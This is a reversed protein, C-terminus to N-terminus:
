HMHWCYFRLLSYWIFPLVANCFYHNEQRVITVYLYWRFIKMVLFAYPHRIDSEKFKHYFRPAYLCSKRTRGFRWFSLTGNDALDINILRFQKLLSFIFYFIINECFDVVTIWHTLAVYESDFPEEAWVQSLKRSPKQM